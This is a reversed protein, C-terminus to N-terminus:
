SLGDGIKGAAVTLTTEVWSKYDRDLVTDVLHWEGTCREATLTVALWGRHATDLFRINPNQKLTADRVGNPTKDPFVSTLTPSTVATTMLEVSVPRDSNAPVLNAALATHLDGSLVVPNAARDALEQLFRARAYPYGEWVDLIQPAHSKSAAIVADLTEQSLSSPQNRDVLPELDPPEMRSVMVQQGIVQWTTGRASDLTERFWNEQTTGLLHRDPDQLAAIISDQTVEPGVNPQMDRGVLRTDLMILTALDGWRFDRYIATDAGNASGRIPMWEFYAQLAADRRDIWAGDEAEHNEAGGRWSDNAIEHDDWVAIMPWRAHMAQSDPDSKYQAHRQRYDALTRIEHRPEPQRGLSEAYETAYEGPGYEYIYDGLHLVADLDNRGAIERYVNFYGAPYNSCSVVAFKAKDIAGQPLTKTQGIGSEQGDCIFRYFYQRGPSLGDADVKVTFDRAIGTHVFGERVINRFGGDTAVQWDVRADAASASTVRTWLIVATPTPDGSAIGHRFSPRPRSLSFAQRVSATTGVLLTVLVRLFKRREM